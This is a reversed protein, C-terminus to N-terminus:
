LHLTVLEQVGRDDAVPLVLLAQAKLLQAVGQARAAQLAAQMAPVEAAGQLAVGAAQVCRLVGAEDPRWRALGRAVPQGRARLSLLSRQGNRAVHPLQVVADAAPPAGAEPVRELSGEGGCLLVAVCALRGQLFVPLAAGSRLGAQAAAAARRFWPVDLRPMLVPQGEDWARGPLGEGRGFCLSRTAAGFHPVRAYLGGALELLTLDPTPVWVEAVRILSTDDVQKGERPGHAGPAHM